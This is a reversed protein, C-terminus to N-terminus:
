VLYDKLLEDITSYRVGKYEIGAREVEVRFHPGLHTVLFLDVGKMQKVINAHPSNSGQHDHNECNHEHGHQHDGHEHHHEHHTHDNKLFETNVVTGNEIEFIAFEVARGTHKAINIRDDTAIAIKM